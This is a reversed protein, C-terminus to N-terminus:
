HFNRRNKGLSRIGTPSYKEAIRQTLVLELNRDAQVVPQVILLHEEAAVQGRADIVLHRPLDAMIRQRCTDAVVIKRLRDREPVGVQDARRSHIRKTDKPVSDSGIMRGRGPTPGVSKPNLIEITVDRCKNRKQEGSVGVDAKTGVKGGSGGACGAETEVLVHVDDASGMLDREAPVQSVRDQNVIGVGPRLAGKGKHSQRRHYIGSVRATDE